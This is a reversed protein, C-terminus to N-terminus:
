GGMLLLPIGSSAGGAGVTTDVGTDDTIILTNPATSKVWLIARGAAPTFNHDARETMLIETVVDLTAGIFVDKAVGLGGDTHISGTITSTSDTTDDVSIIGAAVLSGVNSVSGFAFDSGDDDTFILNNAADNRLWVHGQNSAPTSAHDARELFEIDGDLSINANTKFGFNSGATTHTVVVGEGTGVVNILIARGSASANSSVIEMLAGTSSANNTELRFPTGSTQSNAVITLGDGTSGTWTLEQAVTLPVLNLVGAEAKTRNIWNTGDFQLLEKDAVSTIAVDNLDAISSASDVLTSNRKYLEFLWAQLLPDDTAPPPPLQYAM